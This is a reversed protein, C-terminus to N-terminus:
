NPINPAFKNVLGFETLNSIYTSLSAFTMYPSRKLILLHLTYINNYMISTIALTQLM